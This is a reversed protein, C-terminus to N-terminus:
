APVDPGRGARLRERLGDLFHESGAEAHDTTMDAAMDALGDDITRGALEAAALSELSNGVQGVLYRSLWSRAAADGQLADAVM